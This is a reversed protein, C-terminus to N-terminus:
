DYQRWLYPKATTLKGLDDLHMSLLDSKGTREDWWTIWIGGLGDASLTTMYENRSQFSVQVGTEKWSLKSSPMLHQVFVDWNGNRMDQWGVFAGGIKDVMLKPHVQDGPSSCVVKAPKEWYFGGSEDVRQAYINYGAEDTSAWAIVVGGFGDPVIDPDRIAFTGADKRRANYIPIFKSWADTGDPKMRRLYLTEDNAGIGRDIWLTFFGGDPSIAVPPVYWANCTACHVQRKPRESKEQAQSKQGLLPSAGGPEPRTADTAGAAEALSLALAVTLITKVM